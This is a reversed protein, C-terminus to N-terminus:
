ECDFLDGSAIEPLRLGRAPCAGWQKLVWTAVGERNLHGHCPCVECWTFCYRIVSLLMDLAQLHAWFMPSYIAADIDQLKHEKSGRPRAVILGARQYAELDWWRRLPVELKRLEECRYAVSGWRGANVRASCRLFAVHFHKAVPTTLCTALLRGCCHPDSIFRAVLALTDISAGLVKFSDIMDSTANHLVHLMGPCPIAEHLSIELDAKPTWQKPSRSPTVM